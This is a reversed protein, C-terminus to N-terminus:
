CLLLLHLLLLLILIMMLSARDLLGNSLASYLSLLSSPFHESVPTAQPRGYARSMNINIYCLWIPIFQLYQLLTRQIPTAHPQRCARSM